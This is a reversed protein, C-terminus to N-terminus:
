YDTFFKSSVHYMFVHIVIVNHIYMYKLDKEIGLLVDSVSLRYRSHLMYGECLYQQVVFSIGYM